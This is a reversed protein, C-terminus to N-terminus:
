WPAPVGGASVDESSAGCVANGIGSVARLRSLGTVAGHAFELDVRMRIILGGAAIVLRRHRHVHDLLAIPQPLAHPFQLRCEMADGDARPVRYDVRRIPM